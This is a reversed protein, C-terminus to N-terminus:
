NTYNDNLDLKLFNIVERLNAAMKYEQNMVFSHKLDILVKILKEKEM